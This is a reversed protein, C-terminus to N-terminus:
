QYMDREIDQDDAQREQYVGNKKDEAIFYPQDIQAIQHRVDFSVFEGPGVYQEAHKKYYADGHENVAQNNGHECFISIAYPEELRFYKKSFPCHWEIYQGTINKLKRV